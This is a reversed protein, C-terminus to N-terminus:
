ISTNSTGSNEEEEEEEEEDEEQWSQASFRVVAIVLKSVRALQNQLTILETQQLHRHGVNWLEIMRRRSRAM